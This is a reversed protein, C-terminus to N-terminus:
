QNLEAALKEAGRKGGTTWYYVRARTDLIAWRGCYKAPTYINAM